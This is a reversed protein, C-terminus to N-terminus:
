MFKSKIEWIKIKDTAVHHLFYHGLEHGLTFNQRLEPKNTNILINNVGVM